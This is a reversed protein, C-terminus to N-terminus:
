PTPPKKPSVGAPQPKAGAPPRNAGSATSPVPKLRGIVKETIDLNKDAAVIVSASAGVDFIFTYGDEVRIADLVERIQTMIPQVLEFQRKQAAEEFQQSRQGFEAQKDRIAKERTERQAATLTAQVKTYEGIMATLSDEMRKAQAQYGEMEKQFQAEAAARGPAKDLVVRSDIFAFKPAAQASAGDAALVVLGIATLAARIRFTMRIEM